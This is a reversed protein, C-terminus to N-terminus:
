VEVPEETTRRSSKGRNRKKPKEENNALADSASADQVIVKSRRKSKSSPLDAVSSNSVSHVIGNENPLSHLKEEAPQIHSVESNADNSPSNNKSPISHSSPSKAPAPSPTAKSQLDRRRQWEQQKREAEATAAAVMSPWAADFEAEFSRIQKTKIPNKRVDKLWSDVSIHSPPGKLSPLFMLLDGEDLALIAQEHYKLLTLVFSYLIDSGELLLVDWVRLVCDFSLADLFCKLYWKITYHAPEVNGASLHAHLQPLYIALLKDHVYWARKLGMFDDQFRCAMNFNSNQMFRVLLWFAEEEELYQMMLATLDSMGQCYSVVPDHISYARLISFLSIQGQGYREKFLFHSRNTRNIDIDLQHSIKRSIPQNSLQEYLVPNSLKADMTAGLFRWVGARVHNPIGKYVMKRIKDAPYAKYVAADSKKLNYLRTIKVWKKILKQQSKEREHLADASPGLHATIDSLDISDRTSMDDIDEANDSSPKPKRKPKSENKPKKDGEFTTSAAEAAFLQNSKDSGILFGYTDLKDKLTLMGEPDDPLNEGDSAEVDDEDEETAIIEVPDDSNIRSGSSNRRISSKKGSTRKKKEEKGSEAKSHQCAERLYKRRQIKHRDEYLRKEYRIMVDAGNNVLWSAIIEEKKKVARHLPTEGKGNVAMVDAGKALLKKGITLYGLGCTYHLATNGKRDKAGVDAGKELLREVENM